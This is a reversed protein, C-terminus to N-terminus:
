FAYAETELKWIVAATGHTLHYRNKWSWIKEEDGTVSLVKAGISSSKTGQFAASSETSVSKGTTPFSGTHGSASRHWKKGSKNHFPLVWVETCSVSPTTSVDFTNHELKFTQLHHPPWTCGSMTDKLQERDTHLHQTWTDGGQLGVQMKTSGGGRNGYCSSCRHISLGAAALHCEPGQSARDPM